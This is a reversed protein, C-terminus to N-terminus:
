NWWTEEDTWTYLVVGSV